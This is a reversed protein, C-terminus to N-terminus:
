IRPGSPYYAVIETIITGQAISAYLTPDEGLVDDVKTKTITVNIAIVLAVVVTILLVIGVGQTIIVDGDPELEYEELVQSISMSAENQVIDEFYPFIIDAATVLTREVEYPDGSEVGDKFETFFNPSVTKIHTILEDEVQKVERIQNADMGLADPSYKSITPFHKTAQGNAFIISRFLEEGSYYLINSVKKTANNITNEKNCSVNFFLAVMSLM